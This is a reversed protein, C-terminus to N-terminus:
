VLLSLIPPFITKAPPTGAQTAAGNQLAEFLSGVPAPPNEQSALSSSLLQTNGLALEIVHEQNQAQQMLRQVQDSTLARTDANLRGLQQNLGDTQAKLAAIQATAILQNNTTAQSIQNILNQANQVDAQAATQGSPTSLDYAGSSQVGLGTAKLADIQDPQFSGLPAVVTLISVDINAQQMAADFDVSDGSTAATNANALQTQLDGLVGGNNTYQTQLTSITDSQNQLGTIHAQLADTVAQDPSNQLAAIKDNLRTQILNNITNVENQVAQKTANVAAQALTTLVSPGAGIGSTSSGLPSTSL